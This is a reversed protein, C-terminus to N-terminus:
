ADRAENDAALAADAVCRACGPDDPEDCGQNHPTSSAIIDLSERLGNLREQMEGLTDSLEDVQTVLSRATASALTLDAWSEQRKAANSM